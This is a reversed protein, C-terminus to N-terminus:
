RKELMDQCLRLAHRLLKEREPEEPEAIAGRAARSLPQRAEAVAAALEDPNDALAKALRSIEGLIDDRELNETESVPPATDAEVHRLLVDIGNVSFPQLRNELEEMLEPRALAGCLSTRGELYLDLVLQEGSKLAAQRMADLIRAEVEDIATANDLNVTATAWRAPGLEHFEAACTWGDAGRTATVLLCGKAGTENPHLGQTNGAYAIFPRACLIRRQHAHGLAWADLDAAKLDALSCRAYRDNAVAGDVNCHLVGLQFCDRACDRRFLAALNREEHATAHSAGHVRAIAEGNKMVSVCQPEPGFIFTNAPWQIASFRSTAPDHNGHAIFIPTGQRTLTACMDRLKLQAKIGREEQNYIDGALVLFDPKQAQCLQTLRELAEFTANRLREAWSAFRRGLGSFPTDLHLDAAHIYRIKDM